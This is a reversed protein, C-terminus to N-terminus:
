HFYLLFSYLSLLPFKYVIAYVRGLTLPMGLTPSKESFFDQLDFFTNFASKAKDDNLSYFHNRWTDYVQSWSVGRETEM